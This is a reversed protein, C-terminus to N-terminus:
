DSAPVVAIESVGRIRVHTQYYFSDSRVGNELLWIKVRRATGTIRLTKGVLQEAVSAGLNSVLSAELPEPVAIVLCRPDRYDPESDLYLFGDRHGVRRVVMRFTGSVGAPNDAVRLVAEVPSLDADQGAPQTADDNIVFQIPVQMHCPVPVGNLMAPAFRWKQVAALAAAGFSLDSAKVVFSKVVSGDTAAVFDVVAFGSVGATRLALPYVPRAQFRARPPVDVKSIDVAEAAPPSPPSVVPKSVAPASPPLTPPALTSTANCGVLMAAM